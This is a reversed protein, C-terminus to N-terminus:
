DWYVTYVHFGDDPEPSGAHKGYPWGLGIGDASLGEIWQDAVEQPASSFVHINEAAPWLKDDDLAETWEDHLGVFVGQVDPRAAVAKFRAYIDAISPRGYGWDNPAISDEQTNGVFYDDLTVVPFHEADIADLKQIKELLAKRHDM